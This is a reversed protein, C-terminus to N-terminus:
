EWWSTLHKSFIKSFLELKYKEANNAIKLDHVSSRFQFKPCDDGGLSSMDIDRVQRNLMAARAEANDHTKDEMLQKLLNACVLMRKAQNECGVHNGTEHVKSMRRLKFEIIRALPLWDYDCDSWIVPIWRFINKIGGTFGLVAYRVVNANQYLFLVTNYKWGDLEDLKHYVYSFAKNNVRVGEGM